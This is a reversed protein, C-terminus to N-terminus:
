ASGATCRGAVGRALQVAAARVGASPLIQGFSGHNECGSRNVSGRHVLGYSRPKARCDCGFSSLSSWCWWGLWRWAWNSYRAGIDRSGGGGKGGGPRAIFEQCAAFGGGYGSLFPCVAFPCWWLYGRPLFWAPRGSGRDCGPVRAPWVPRAQGLQRCSLRQGPADGHECCPGRCGAGAPGHWRGGPRSRCAARRCRADAGSVSLSWPRLTLGALSLPLVFSFSCTMNLDVDVENIRSPTRAMMTPIMAIAHGPTVIRASTM